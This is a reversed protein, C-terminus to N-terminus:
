QKEGTPYTCNLEFGTTFTADVALYLFALGIERPEGLRDILMSSKLMQM